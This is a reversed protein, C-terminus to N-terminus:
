SLLRWGIPCEGMADTAVLLAVIERVNVVGVAVDTGEWMWGAVRKRLVVVVYSWTWRLLKVVLDVLAELRVHHLAFSTM